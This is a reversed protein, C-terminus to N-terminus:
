PYRGSQFVGQILSADAKGPGPFLFLRGMIQANRQTELPRQSGVTSQIDIYAAASGAIPADARRKGAFFDGPVAEAEGQKAGATDLEIHGPM